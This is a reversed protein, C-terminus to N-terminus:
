AGLSGKPKLCDLPPWRDGPRDPPDEPQDAAQAQAQARFAIGREGQLCLGGDVIGSM